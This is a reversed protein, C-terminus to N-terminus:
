LRDFVQENDETVAAGDETTPQWCGLLYVEAHVPTSYTTTQRLSNSDADISQGWGMDKATYTVINSAVQPVNAIYHFLLNDRKQAESLTGSRHNVINDFRLARRVSNIHSGMDCKTIADIKMSDWLLSCYAVPPLTSQASSSTKLRVAIDLHEVYMADIVVAHTGQGVSVTSGAEETQQTAKRYCWLTDLLVETQAGDVKGYWEIYYQSTVDAHAGNLVQVRFTYTSAADTLVNYLTKTPALLNITLQDATADQSTTLLVQARVTVMRGADRPDVYQGSCCIPQGGNTGTTPPVNKMVRLQRLPNQYRDDGDVHAQYFYDSGAAMVPSAPIPVWHLGPWLTDSSYDTTNSGDWRYWNLQYWDPTYLTRTDTDLAVVSPTLVLPTSSRNPKWQGTNVYYWQELTDSAQISFEDTLPTLTTEIVTASSINLRKGM